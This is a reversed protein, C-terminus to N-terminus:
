DGGAAAARDVADKFLQGRHEFNDFMDFSACAPSLLLVDGPAGAALAQEVAQDMSDCFAAPIAPDMAEAILRADAGILFLGKAKAAVERRLKSFDGGKGLGGMILLVRGPAMGALAKLTSDVNTAKSDNVARTGRVTGAPEMRHPLARFDAVAAAFTQPGIGLHGAVAAVALSNELNHRGELPIDGANMMVLDEDALRVTLRDEQMYAGEAGAKPKGRGATFFLRRVGPNLSGMAMARTVQDDLNIVAADGEGQNLFIREKAASYVRMERHRDLHDPTINLMVAVAPRFDRVTELQFSSLEAVLWGDAPEPGEQGDILDLLPTGLNGGVLTPLGARQLLHGTLSTVTSKGNSGTIGIIRRSTAQGALEVEGIVPLGLKNAGQVLPISTPVGPSLVLCDAALCRVRDHGGTEVTAGAARLQEAAEGLEEASRSDTCHVLAGRALLHRAAARGSAGLGVVTFHRNRLEM